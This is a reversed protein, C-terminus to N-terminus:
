LGRYWEEREDLVAESLPAGPTVPMVLEPLVNRPHTTALTYTIGRKALHECVDRLEDSPGPEAQAPRKPTSGM